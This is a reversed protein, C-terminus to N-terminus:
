VVVVKVQECGEPEIADNAFSMLDPEDVSGDSDKDDAAGQKTDEDKSRQGNMRGNKQAAKGSRKHKPVKGAAIKTCNQTM